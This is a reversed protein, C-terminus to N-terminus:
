REILVNKNTSIATLSLRTKALCYRERVRYIIFQGNPLPTNGVGRVVFGKMGPKLGVNKGRDIRLRLLKGVRQARLIRAHIPPLRGDPPPPADAEPAADYKIPIAALRPPNPVDLPGADLKAPRAKFRIRLRYEGADIRRPAYIQIYYKGKEVRRLKVRKVRRGKGPSPKARRVRKLYQDYVNFALDLGPRPSKWKLKIRMKGAAPLEVVRWDVRDGGPYTVIGKVRGEGREDLKIKKAHKYSQDKGSHAKQSINSLCAYGAVAISALAILQWLRSRAIKVLM